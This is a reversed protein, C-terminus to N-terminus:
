AQYSSGDLPGPLPIPFFSPYQHISCAPPAKPTAAFFVNTQPAHLANFPTQIKKNCIFSPSKPCNTMPPIGPILPPLGPPPADALYHQVLVKASPPPPVRVKETMTCTVVHNRSARAALPSSTLMILTDSVQSDSSTAASELPLPLEACCLAITELTKPHAKVDMEFAKQAICGYADQWDVSEADSDWVEGVM